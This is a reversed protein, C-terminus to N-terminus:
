AVPTATIRSVLVAATIVEGDALKVKNVTDAAALSAFTRSVADGHRLGRGESMDQRQPDTFKKAENAGGIEHGARCPRDYFCANDPAFNLLYTVPHVPVQKNNVTGFLTVPNGDALLFAEVNAGTLDAANISPRDDGTGTKKDGTANKAYPPEATIRMRFPATPPDLPLLDSAADLAKAVDAASGSAYLVGLMISAAQISKDRNASKETKEAAKQKVQQEALDARATLRAAQEKNGDKENRKAADRLGKVTFGAYPDDVKPAAAVKPTAAAKEPEATKPAPQTKAVEAVADGGADGTKKETKSM